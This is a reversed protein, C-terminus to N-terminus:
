ISSFKINSTVNEKAYHQHQCQATTCTEGATFSLSVRKTDFYLKNEYLLRGGQRSFKPVSVVTFPVFDIRFDEVVAEDGIAGNTGHKGRGGEEAAKGNGDYLM